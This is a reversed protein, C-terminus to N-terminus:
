SDVLSRTYFSYRALTPCWQQYVRIDAVAQPAADRIGDVFEAIRPGATSDAGRVVNVVDADCAAARIATFIVPAADPAGVLVALLIQVVQYGGLGIFTPLHEEPIGVRVLRYLNVLKKAARPTSLLPGLRVIFEIEPARLVLGGPRLGPAAEGGPVAPSPRDAPALPASSPSPQSPGPPSYRPKGDGALRQDASEGPGSAPGVAPQDADAPDHGLLAALFGAADEASLSRVTFPIQFIKDLYDLPTAPRDGPGFISIGAANPAFLEHYHHHLAELLWRPDVAVIVVFLPLALMLHVAALVEVVRAPPCRDLDDIYLIIRELPPPVLQGALQREKRLRDLDTSLQELDRHVQGLLGRGAGYPDLDGQRKLLRALRVAADVQALQDELAALRERAQGAEEKLSNAPWDAVQRGGRALNWARGLATVLGSPLLQFAIFVFAVATFLGRLLLRWRNRWATRGLAALGRSTRSHPSDLEACLQKQDRVEQRLRNREARIDDPSPPTRGDAASVALKRFLHDILGTWVQDDSYHWANFRVQCVNSVYDSEGPDSRPRAARREVADQVQLMVSSKGAGWEGLLAVALPPETSAATILTALMEVDDRMGLLDVRSPEDSRIGPVSPLPRAQRRGSGIPVGSRANWRNIRGDDGVSVLAASGPAFAVSRVVGTRDTLIRMASGDRADWLRITGDDGASALLTGDPSFALARVVGDHGPLTAVPKAPDAVNWLRITGDAGAGALQRGDPRLAVCRARDIAPTFERRTVLSPDWQRIVDDRGAGVIAADGPDIAVSMIPHGTPSSTAALTGDLANWIALQGGEDASVLLSQGYSEPCFAVSTVLGRGPELAAASAFGGMMEWVHIRGGIAAALLTGTGSFALSRVWERDATLRRVLSGGTTEWIRIAGDVDGTALLTGDPSCAVSLIECTHGVLHMPSARDKLDYVCVDGADGADALHTGDPAFAVDHSRRIRGLPTSRPGDVLDWLLIGADHGASALTRGDPSFAVARADDALEDRQTGDLLNWLRVTGDDGASALLPRGPAFAVSLVQGTHGAITIRTRDDPNWLRIKGDRGASALTRGDPSFAVARADDALEDGQTGDLPNWLRVTGDDGASALLPRGPAFAVSLVAGEHGRLVGASTRAATDWLRITRDRGGSALLTGDPAFAVSRVPGAHGALTSIEGGAHPNWLRVTGDWGGSALLTGDLSYGVTFVSGPHGGYPGPLVVPEPEAM